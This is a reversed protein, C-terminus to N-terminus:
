LQVRKDSVSAFNKNIYEHVTLVNENRNLLGPTHVTVFGCTVYERNELM